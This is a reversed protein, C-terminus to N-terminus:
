FNSLDNFKFFCKFILYTIWPHGQIEWPHLDQPPANKMSLMHWTRENGEILVRINTKKTPGFLSMCAFNYSLFVKIYTYWLIIFYVPWLIGCTYSLIKTKAFIPRWYVQTNKIIDYLVRGDMPHLGYSITKVMFIMTSLMNVTILEVM